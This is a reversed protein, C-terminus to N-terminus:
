SFFFNSFVVFLGYGLFILNGSFALVRLPFFREHRRHAVITFLIGLAAGVMASLFAGIVVGYAAFDRARSVTAARQDIFHNWLPVSAFLFVTAVLCAGLTFIPFRLTM